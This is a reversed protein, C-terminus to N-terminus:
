IIRYRYCVIDIYYEITMSYKDVTVVFQLNYFVTIGKKLDQGGSHWWLSGIFVQWHKSKSIQCNATFICSVPITNATVLWCYHTNILEMEYRDDDIPYIPYLIQRGAVVVLFCTMLELNSLTCFWWVIGKVFHAWRSRSGFQLQAVFVLHSSARTANCGGGHWGLVSLVWCCVRAEQTPPIAWSIKLDNIVRETTIDLGWWTSKQIM